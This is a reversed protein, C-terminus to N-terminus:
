SRRVPGAEPPEIGGEVGGRVNTSQAPEKPGISMCPV